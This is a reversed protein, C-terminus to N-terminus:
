HEQDRSSAYEVDAASLDGQHTSIRGIPEHAAKMEPRPMLQLQMAPCPCPHISIVPQSIDVSGTMRTLEESGRGRDVPFASQQANGQSGDIKM